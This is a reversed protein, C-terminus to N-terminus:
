KLAPLSGDKPWYAFQVQRLKDVPAIMSGLPDGNDLEHSSGIPSELIFVARLNEDESCTYVVVFELRFRQETTRHASGDCIKKVRDQSLEHIENWVKYARERVVDESALYSPMFWTFAFLIAVPMIAILLTIYRRM